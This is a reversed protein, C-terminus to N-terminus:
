SCSSADRKKGKDLPRFMSNRAVSSAAPSAPVLPLCCMGLVPRERELSSVYPSDRPNQDSQVDCSGHPHLWHGNGLSVSGSDGLEVPAFRLYSKEGSRYAYIKSRFARLSLGATM